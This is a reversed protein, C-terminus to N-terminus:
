RGDEGGRIIRRGCHACYADRLAEPGAGCRECTGDAAPRTVPDILDALRSLVENDFVYSEDIVSGFKWGNVAVELRRWLYGSNHCVTRAAARLREAIAISGDDSM